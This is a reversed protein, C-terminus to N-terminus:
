CRGSARACDAGARERAHKNVVARMESARQRHVRVDIWCRTVVHSLQRVTGREHRALSIM